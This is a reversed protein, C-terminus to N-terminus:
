SADTARPGPVSRASSSSMPPRLGIRSTTECGREASSWARAANARARWRRGSSWSRPRALLTTVRVTPVAPSRTAPRGCAPRPCRHRSVTRARTGCHLRHVHQRVRAPHRDEAALGHGPTEIARELLTTPVRAASADRSRVAGVSASVDRQEVRRAQEKERKELGLFPEVAVPRKERATVVVAQAASATKLPSHQHGQEEAREVCGDSGARRGSARKAPNGNRLPPRNERDASSRVCASSSNRSSSSPRKRDSSSPRYRKVARSSVASQDSAATSGSISPRANSDIIADCSRRFVPANKVGCSSTARTVSSASACARPWDSSSRTGAADAGLAPLGSSPARHRARSARAAETARGPRRTPLTERGRARAFRAVAPDGRRHVGSRPAAVRSHQRARDEADVNLGVATQSQWSRSQSLTTMSLGARSGACTVGSGFRSRLMRTPSASATSSATWTRFLRRPTSRVIARANHVLPRRECSSVRVRGRDRRVCRRSRVARDGFRLWRRQGARCRRPRARGRDRRPATTPRWHLACQALPAERRADRPHSCATPRQQGASRKGEGKGRMEGVDGAGAPEIDDHPIRRPHAHVPNRSTRAGRQASAERRIAAGGPAGAGGRRAGANAERGLDVERRQEDLSRERQRRRCPDDRQENRCLQPSRQGTATNAAQEHAVVLKSDISSQDLAGASKSAATYGDSTTARRPLSEGDSGSGSVCTVTCAWLTAAVHPM